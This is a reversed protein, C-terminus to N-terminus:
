NELLGDDKWKQITGILTASLKSGGQPMFSGNGPSLNIRTLITTVNNKAHTYNLYNTQPGSPGHCAVCNNQLITKIHGNFTVTETPIIPPTTNEQPQTITSNCGFLLLGNFSFIFVLKM